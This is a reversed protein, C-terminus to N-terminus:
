LREPLTVIFGVWFLVPQSSRLSPHCLVPDPFFWRVLLTKLRGSGITRSSWPRGMAFSRFLMSIARQIWSILSFSPLPHDFEQIEEEPGVIGHDDDARGKHDNMHHLWSCLDAVRGPSGM